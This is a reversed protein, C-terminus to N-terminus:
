KLDENGMRVSSTAVMSFDYKMSSLSELTIKRRISAKNLEKRVPFLIRIVKMRHM